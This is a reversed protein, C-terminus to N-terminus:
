WSLKCCLWHQGPVTPLQPWIGHVYRGKIDGNLCLHDIEQLLKLSLVPQAVEEDRM